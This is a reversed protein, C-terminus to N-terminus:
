HPHGKDAEKKYSNKKEKYVNKSDKFAAPAPMAKTSRTTLLKTIIIKISALNKHELKLPSLKEQTIDM